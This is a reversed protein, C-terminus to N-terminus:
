WILEDFTVGYIAWKIQFGGGGGFFFTGYKIQESQNDYWFNWWMKIWTM